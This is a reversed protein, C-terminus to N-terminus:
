PRTGRTATACAGADAAVYQRELLGAVAAPSLLKMQAAALELALPIGDTDGASASWRPPTTQAEGRLRRSGGHRARRVAGGSAAEVDRDDRPRALAGVAYEQEAGLRLPARSTVLLQADPAAPWRAARVVDAVGALHEANDLLLLLRRGGLQEALQEATLEGADSMELAQGIAPVIM